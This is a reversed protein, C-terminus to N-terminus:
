FTSDGEEEDHESCGYVPDRAEHFESEPCNCFNGFYDDDLDRCTDCFRPPDIVQGGIFKVGTIKKYKDQLGSLEEMKEQIENELTYFEVNNM